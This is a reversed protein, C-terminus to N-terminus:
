KELNFQHKQLKEGFNLWFLFKELNCYMHNQSVQVSKFRM